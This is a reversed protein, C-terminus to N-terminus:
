PNEMITLQQSNLVTISTFFSDSLRPRDGCPYPSRLASAPAVLEALGTMGALETLLHSLDVM